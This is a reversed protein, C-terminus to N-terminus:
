RSYTTTKDRINYVPPWTTAVIRGSMTFESVGEGLGNFRRATGMGEESCTMIDARLCM